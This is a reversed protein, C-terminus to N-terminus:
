RAHTTRGRGEQEEEEWAGLVALAAGQNGAWGSRRPDDMVRRRGPPDCVARGM